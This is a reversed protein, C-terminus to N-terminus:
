SPACTCLQQIESYHTQLLVIKPVSTFELIGQLLELEGRFECEIRYVKKIGRKYWQRKECHAHVTAHICTVRPDFHRQYNAAPFARRQM